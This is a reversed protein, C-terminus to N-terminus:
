FRQLRAFCLRTSRTGTGVAPHAYQFHTRTQPPPPRPLNAPCVKPQEASIDGSRGIGHALGFHRRRVLPCAVRGEREGVGANSRFNNSDMM